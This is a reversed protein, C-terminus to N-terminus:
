TNKGSTKQKLDNLIQNIETGIREIESVYRDTDETIAKIIIENHKIRLECYKLLKINQDHLDNPLNEIKNLREVIARNEKWLVIGKSLEKILYDPTQTEFVNFVAISKNENDAFKAVEKDNTVSDFSSETNSLDGAIFAVLAIGLAIILMAIAGIGAAKWGSYFEGGSEKHLKLIKGHLREVIWYILGTYIM